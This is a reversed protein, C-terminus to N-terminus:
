RVIKRREPTGPPTKGSKLSSCRRYKAKNDVNEDINIKEDSSSSQKTTLSSAISSTGGISPNESESIIRSHSKKIDNLMSTSHCRELSSVNDSEQANLSQKSMLDTLFSFNAPSTGFVSREQYPKKVPSPINSELPKGITSSRSGHSSNSDKELLSILSTLKSTAIMKDKEGICIKTQSVNTKLPTAESESGDITEDSSIEATQQPNTLQQNASFSDDTDATQNQSAPSSPAQQPTSEDDEKKNKNLMDSYNSKLWDEPAICFGASDILGEDNSKLGDPDDSFLGSSTSGFATSHNTFETDLSSESNIRCLMNKDDPNLIINESDEQEEDDNNNPSSIDFDFFLDSDDKSDNAESKEKKASSNNKCDMIDQDIILDELHTLNNESRFLNTSKTNQTLSQLSSPNARAISSNSPPFTTGLINESNELIIRLRESSIAATNSLNLSESSAGGPEHRLSELKSKLNYAFVEPPTYSMSSLMKAELFQWLSLGYNKILCWTSCSKTSNRNLFNSNKIQKNKQPQEEPNPFFSSDFNENLNKLAEEPDYEESSSSLNDDEELNDSKRTEELIQPLYSDAFNSM